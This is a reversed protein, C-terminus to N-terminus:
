FNMLHLEAQVWRGLETKAAEEGGNIYAKVVAARMRLMVGLINYVSGTEITSGIPFFCKAIDRIHDACEQDNAYEYENNVDANSIWTQFPSSGGFENFVVHLIDRAEVKM